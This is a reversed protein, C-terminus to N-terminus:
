FIEPFCKSTKPFTYHDKKCVILAQMGPHLREAKALSKGGNRDQALGMWEVWSRGPGKGSHGFADVPPQGAGSFDNASVPGVVGAVFFGFARM